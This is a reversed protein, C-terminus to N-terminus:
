QLASLGTLCDAAALKGNVAALFAAEDDVSVGIHATEKTRGLLGHVTAPERLVIVLRAEGMIAANLFDPQKRDASTARRVVEIQQWPIDARWRMGSRVHLRDDGAVMPQFRSAHFDGFFWILTYISAITLIWAVTTNWRALLLHAVGTELLVLFALFGLVFAYGGQRHYSFRPRGDDAHRTRRVWGTVGFSILSVETTLLSAVLPPFTPVAARLSAELTEPFYAHSPRLRRYHGAVTRLKLAIVVLVSLEVLPAVLEAYDLYTHQAAPLIKGAVILSLVFVPAVTIVPLRKRRVVLLYYLLPIAVVIDATVALSLVEPHAAFDATGTIWAEAALLAAALLAFLLLPNGILSKTRM